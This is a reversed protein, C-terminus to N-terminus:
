KLLVIGKDIAKYIGGIRTWRARYGRVDLHFGQKYWEPYVGFGVFDDLQYSELVNKIIYYVDKASINEFHFDVANGKYHQSNESHGETKYACHIICPTVKRYKDWSNEKVKNTILDLLILLLGNVKKKDGWNECPSFNNLKSWIGM